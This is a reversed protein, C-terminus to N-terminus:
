HATFFDMVGLQGNWGVGDNGGPWQHGGSSLTLFKVERDSQGPPTPWTEESWTGAVWYTLRNQTFTIHPWGTATAANADNFWSLPLSNAATQPARLEIPVDLPASYLNDDMWVDQRVFHNEVSSFHEPLTGPNVYARKVNTAPTTPLGNGTLWRGVNQRPSPQRDPQGDNNLDLTLGEPTYFVPGEYAWAGGSTVMNMLICPRPKAPLLPAATFDFPVRPSYKSVWTTGSEMIAFARFPHAADTSIYHTMSGGNSFGACYLRSTDVRLGTNNILHNVLGFLFTKDDVWPQIKTVDGAAPDPHAFWTNDDEASTADPFVTIFGRDNAIGRLESQTGALTAGTMSHGHLMLILPWERAPSWNDPVYLHYNRSVSHQQWVGSADITRVGDTHAFRLGIQQGGRCEIPSTIVPSHRIRFWRRPGVLLESPIEVSMAGTVEEEPLAWTAWALLDTSQEGQWSWGARGTWHLITEGGTGNSLSIQDQDSLAPAASIQLPWDEVEGDPAPGTPALCGGSSVRLRAFTVGPVAQAPVLVKLTNTGAHLPLSAAIQDRLDLPLGAWSKNQTWDVWADLRCDANVSITMEIVSGQEWLAPWVVGNDDESSSLALPHHAGDTETNGTFGLVRLGDPAHRAGNEALRVPYGQPADGFDLQSAAVLRVGAPAKPVAIDPLRVVTDAGVTVRGSQLVRRTTQDCNMWEVGTGAAPKFLQPRRIAVDAALLNVPCEDIGPMLANGAGDTDKTLFLTAAWFNANERLARADTLPVGNVYDFWGGWTGRLDGGIIEPFPWCASPTPDTWPSITDFFPPTAGYDPTGPDDHASRGAVNYFAPYSENRRYRAITDVDDRRTQVAIGPTQPSWYDAATGCGPLYSWTDVGHKRLDWYLTFGTGRADAIEMIERADNRLTHDFDESWNEERLGFWFQMPPLDRVASVDSNPNYFDNFRVAGGTSGTIGAVVLNQGPDPTTGALPPTMPYGFRPVDPGFSMNNGIEANHAAAFAFREPSTRVWNLTGKGGASHGFMSVRDADVNMLPDALFRDLLWNWRRLTYPEIQANAPPEDAHADGAAMGEYVNLNAFPDYGPVYGLYATNNAEPVGNHLLHIRDELYCVFSKSPAPGLANHQMGTSFWYTASGNGGHGGFALPRPGAPLTEPAMLLCHHPVCRRARNAMLPFAAGLGAAPADDGDVWVNLFTLRHRPGGAPGILGSQQVHLKPPTAANLTTTVTALAGANVTTQGSPVVAYFWSGGARVTDVCLGKGATLTVPNGAADPITFHDRGAAGGFVENMQAAINLGAYEQAFLRAMRTANAVNVFASASRYIEYTQAPAATDFDWTIWVQGDREHAAVGTAQSPAVTTIVYDEVEGAGGDGDHSAVGNQSLRVRVPVTAAADVPVFVGLPHAGLGDAQNPGLEKVRFNNFMREGADAFDGDANWDAWVDLGAEDLVAPLKVDVILQTWAGRQWAIIGQAPNHRATVGDEDDGGAFDDGDALLGPAGNAEADTQPGLSFGPVILHRAGGPLLTGYANPLDGYDYQQASVPLAAALLLASISLLCRSIMGEM